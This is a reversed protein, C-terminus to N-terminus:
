DTVVRGGERATSQLLRLAAQKEGSRLESMIDDAAEAPLVAWVVVARDRRLRAARASLFRTTEPFEPCLTELGNRTAIGLYSNLM